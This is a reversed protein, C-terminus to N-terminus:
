PKGPKPLERSTGDEQIAHPELRRKEGATTTTELGSDPGNFIESAIGAGALINMMM